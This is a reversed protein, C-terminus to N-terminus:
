RGPRLIGEVQALEDPTLPGYTLAGANQEAQAATRLGPIPVARPCRAWIWALAGQALTRGGSTLVDRVADRKALFEPTPRGDRFFALWEANSARVDDAPLADDWNERALLGM